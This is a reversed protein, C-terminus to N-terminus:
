EDRCENRIRLSSVNSVNRYPNSWSNRNYRNNFDLLPINYNKQTIFNNICHQLKESPTGYRPIVPAFESSSGSASESLGRKNRKSRIVSKPRTKPQINRKRSSPRPVEIGFSPQTNVFIFIFIIISRMIHDVVRRKNMKVSSFEPSITIESGQMTLVKQRAVQNQM